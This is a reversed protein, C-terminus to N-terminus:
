TFFRRFKLLLVAFMSIGMENIKREAEGDHFNGHVRASMGLELKIM